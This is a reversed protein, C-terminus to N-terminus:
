IILYIVIYIGRGRSMANPKIIWYNSIHHDKLQMYQNKFEDYEDPLLFTEPIINFNSKGHKIQMKIINECLRDKRTIEYSNPFHNIRQYANLGKFLSPILHNNCWLVNWENGDTVVFENAEMVSQILRADSRIIKYQLLSDKNDERHKKLILSKHESSTPPRFKIPPNTNRCTVLNPHM